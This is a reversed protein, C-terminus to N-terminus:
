KCRQPPIYVVKTKCKTKYKQFWKAYHNKILVYIEVM